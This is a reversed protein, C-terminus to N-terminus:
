KIIWIIQRRQSPECQGWKWICLFICSKYSIFVKIMWEALRILLCCKPCSIHFMGSYTFGVRQVKVYMAVKESKNEWAETSRKVIVFAIGFFHSKWKNNWFAHRFLAPFPFKLKNPPFTLSSDEKRRLHSDPRLCYVECLFFHEDRINNQPFHTLHM